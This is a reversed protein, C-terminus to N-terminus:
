SAPPNARMPRVRQRFGPESYPRPTRQYKTTSIPPRSTFVNRRSTAHAPIDHLLREVHDTLDVCSSRQHAEEPPGGDRVQHARGDKLAVRRSVEVEDAQRLVDKDDAIYEDGGPVLFIEGHGAEEPALAAAETMLRGTERYVKAKVSKAERPDDVQPAAKM